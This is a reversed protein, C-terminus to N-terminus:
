DEDKPEAKKEQPKNWCFYVTKDKEDVVLHLQGYTLIRWSVQKPKGNEDSIQGNMGTGREPAGFKKRILDASKPKCPTFTLEKNEVSLTLDAKDELEKASLEILKVIQEAKEEASQAGDGDEGETAEGGAPKVRSKSPLRAVVRKPKKGSGLPEALTIEVEKAEAMGKTASSGVVKATDGAKALSLDNSDLDITADQALEVTLKGKFYTNPVSVTLRGAKYGVVQAAIEYNDANDAVPERPLKARGPGAAENFRRVGPTRSADTQSPTFVSLRGVKETTRGQRRDVSASFRVYTGPSLGDAEVTGNVRVQTKPPISVTWQQNGATTIVIAGAGVRVIKGELTISSRQPQGARQAHGASALGLVLIWALWTRCFMISEGSQLLFSPSLRM